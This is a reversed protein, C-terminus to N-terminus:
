ELVDREKLYIEVSDVIYEATEYQKQADELSAVFFDSYDSEERVMKIRGLRKGLERPFIDTAVYNKNVISVTGSFVTIQVCRQM